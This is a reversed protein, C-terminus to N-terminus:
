SETNGNESSNSHKKNVSNIESTRKGDYVNGSVKYKHRDQQLYAAGKLTCNQIFTEIFFCFM